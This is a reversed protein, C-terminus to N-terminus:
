TGPRARPSARACTRSSTRACPRPPPEPSTSQRATRATTRARSLRARSASVDVHVVRSAGGALAAVGFAGSYSFLNLVRRGAALGRVLARNERQDLFFGTKQGGALEAVFNLGRERFPARPPFRDERLVEDELPLGEGKRSRPRQAPRDDSRPARERAGSALSDRARETGETTAQVSLVGGYRDVVLGPLFDGEANM